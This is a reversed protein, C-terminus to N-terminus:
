FFEHFCKKKLVKLCQCIMSSKVYECLFGNGPCYPLASIIEEGSTKVFCGGSSSM